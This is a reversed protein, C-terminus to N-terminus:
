LAQADAAASERAIKAALIRRVLVAAADIPLIAPRHAFLDNSRMRSRVARLMPEDENEFANQTGYHLMQSVQPNDLAKNRGAAWFYRTSDADSPALLHMVFIAPDDDGVVDQTSMGTKLSLNAPAQWQMHAVLNAIQEEGDWLIQFLGTIPEQRVDNYATVVEGVQEARFTTRASNGPSALFPHLFEVHSLDLLNDIVLEYNTAVEVQGYVWALGPREFFPLSPLPTDEALAAAGTWVWLMGYKEAVPYSRVNLASSIGGRGHPNRLCTGESSFELGHYKCVIRDDRRTGLSLPAFRHPCADFLARPTGHEDRFLAIPDDLLRIPLIADQLDHAWGAPYWANRLFSM